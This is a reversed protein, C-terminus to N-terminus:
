EKGLTSPSHDLTFTGDEHEYLVSDVDDITVFLDSHCLEYDKHNQNAHDYVRFIWKGESHYPNLLCGKVGLANTMKTKMKKM